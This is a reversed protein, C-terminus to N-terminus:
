GGRLQMLRLFTVQTQPALEIVENEDLVHRGDILLVFRGRRFAELARDTEREVDPTGDRRPGNLAQEEATVEVLPQVLQGSREILEAMVRGRILDAVTFRTGTLDLDLEVPPTGTAQDRVRVTM